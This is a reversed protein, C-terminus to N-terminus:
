TRGATFIPKGISNPFIDDLFCHLQGLFGVNRGSARNVPILAELGIQVKDGVWIVGPNITGTTRERAFNNSVPTTLSAELLPVLHNVFDPLGLDVVASKLYPLSYQLSAGWVLYRPHHDVDFDPLGTDEDFGTFTVRKASGPIAYGLQGTVAFPRAWDLEHPLDGFGKGFWLTPTVTTFSEAGISRAGTNGWEASVGVSAVFEHQPDTIFQYKLTTELNGFGHGGPSLRTYTDGVSIGFYESIRKSYEFSLDVERANDSNKLIAITPLALEDAVFPDDIALTAPFLRDGVIGHASAAAPLLLCAALGGAWFTQRM